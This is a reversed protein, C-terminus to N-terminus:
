ETRRNELGHEKWGWTSKQLALKGGMSERQKIDKTELGYNYALMGFLMSKNYQEQNQTGPVCDSSMLKAVCKPPCCLVFGTRGVLSRM